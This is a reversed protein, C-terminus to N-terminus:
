PSRPDFTDLSWALQQAKEGFTQVAQLILPMTDGLTTQAAGNMKNAASTLADALILAALSQARTDPSLDKGALLQRLEAEYRDLEDWDM